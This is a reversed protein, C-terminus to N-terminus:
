KLVHMILKFLFFLTFSLLNTSTTNKRYLCIFVIVTIVTTELKSKFHNGLTFHPLTHNYVGTLRTNPVSLSTSQLNLASKPQMM